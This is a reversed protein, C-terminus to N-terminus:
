DVWSGANVNVVDDPSFKVGAGGDRAILKVYNSSRFYYEYCVMGAEATCSQIHDLGEPKAQDMFAPSPAPTFTGARLRTSAVDLLNVARAAERINPAEFWGAKAEDGLRECDAGRVQNPELRRWALPPARDLAFQVIAEVGYPRMPRDPYSGASDVAAYRLQVVDRRCLGEYETNFARTTLDVHLGFRGQYIPGVPKLISLLDQRVIRDAEGPPLGEMQRATLPQPEGGVVTGAALAAGLAVVWFSLLRRRGGTPSADQCAESRLTPM